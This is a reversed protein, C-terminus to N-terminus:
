LLTPTPIFSATIQKRCIIHYLTALHKNIVEASLLHPCRVYPGRSEHAEGRSIKLRQPWEKGFGWGYGEEMNACVSDLSRVQQKTLERGRYDKGLIESDSWFDDFLQCALKYIGYSELRDIAKMDMRWTLM